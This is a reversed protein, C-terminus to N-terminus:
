GTLSKHKLISKSVDGGPKAYVCGQHLTLWQYRNRSPPLPVFNRVQSSEIEHPCTCTATGASILFGGLDGGDFFLSSSDGLDETGLIEGFNTADPDSFTLPENIPDTPLTNFALLNDNPQTTFDNTPETFDISDVCSGDLAVICDKKNISKFASCHAPVAVAVFAFLTLPTLRFSFMTKM